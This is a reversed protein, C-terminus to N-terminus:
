SNTRYDQTIVEKKHHGQSDTIDPHDSASLVTRTTEIFQQTRYTETLRHDYANVLETPHRHASTLSVAEEEETNDIETLTSTSLPIHEITVHGIASINTTSPALTTHPVTTGEYVPDFPIETTPERTTTAETTTYDTVPKLELHFQEIILVVNQKFIIIKTNIQEKLKTIYLQEVEYAQQKKLKRKSVEGRFQIKRLKVTQLIDRRLFYYLQLLKKELRSINQSKYKNNSVLEQLLTTRTFRYNDILLLKVTIELEKWRKLISEKILRQIDVENVNEVSISRKIKILKNSGAMLHQIQNNEKTVSEVSEKLSVTTKENKKSKTDKKSNQNLLGHNHIPIINSNDDFDSNKSNNIVDEEVGEIENSEHNSSLYIIKNKM